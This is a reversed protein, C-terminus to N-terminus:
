PTLATPNGGVFADYPTQDPVLTREYTAIAFAIRAATIDPTGFATTFLQPYTVGGAIAAAMDAPLNTALAMPGCDVLKQSAEAFTRADHAMEGRNLIPALAQNELAGNTPILVQSTVPDVFSTGARGDWFLSPFWAALLVSPSTRSTVQRSLGFVPDPLYLNNADSRVIGPSGFKDDPSPVVGDPGPNVVRRLDGGGAAFTHCTGCAVRNNSSMQEEWFLLKGLMAKPATVPNQPPVPQPPLSQSRLCPVLLSLPLLLTSLRM